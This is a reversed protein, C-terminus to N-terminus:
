PTKGDRVSTNGFGASTARSPAARNDRSTARSRRPIRRLCVDDCRDTTQMRLLPRLERELAKGSHGAFRMDCEDTVARQAALQLRLRRLQFHRRAHM